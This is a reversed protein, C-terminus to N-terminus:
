EAQRPRLFVKIDSGPAIAGSGNYATTFGPIKFGDKDVVGVDFTLLLLAVVCLVEQKAFLRGPCMTKGGGWPWMKSGAPSTTFVYKGNAKEDPGPALFRRAYFANAPPSVFFSPDRHSPWSPAMIVSNKKLSLSHDNAKDLPLNVDAYLERTVLVDVYLRLVEHFMSQLLPQSCLKQIDLKIDHEGGPSPLVALRVEDLVAPLLDPEKPNLIHLLMWTTTPISNSNLGFLLGLELSARGRTSMGRQLWLAQRARSLRSGWEPEWKDTPDHPDPTEGGTRGDVLRIWKEMGDLAAALAVHPQPKLFKPVGYLLDLMSRDFVWFDDNLDPYAEFLHDGQFSRGSATFMVRRLWAHLDVQTEGDSEKNDRVKEVERVLGQAFFTAFSQVLENVYTQRMLYELIVNEGDDPDGGIDSHLGQLKLRAYDDESMGMCQTIVDKTTSERNAVDHKVKLLAQVATPSFLLYATKGGLLLTCAGSDRPHWSLLRSLFRGPYPALFDLASGLWPVAYPIKAPAHSKSTTIIALKYRVWTWLYTTGCLFLLTAPVVLLSQFWM